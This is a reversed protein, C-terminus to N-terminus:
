APIRPAISFADGVRAAAWAMLRATDIGTSQAEPKLLIVAGIAIADPADPTPTPEATLWNFSTTEMIAVTRARLSAILLLTALLAIKYNVKELLPSVCFLQAWFYPPPSLGGGYKQAKYQDRQYLFQYLFRNLITGEM